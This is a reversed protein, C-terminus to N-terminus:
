KKVKLGIEIAALRARARPDAMAFRPFANGRSSLGLAEGMGRQSIVATNQADDLRFKV